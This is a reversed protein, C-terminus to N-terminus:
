KYIMFMTLLLLVFEILAMMKWFMVPNREM